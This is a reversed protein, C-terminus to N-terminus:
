IKKWHGPVWVAKGYKNFKYHGGVWVYNPGPKNVVKVPSTYVRFRPWSNTEGTSIFLFGMVLILAAIVSKISKMNKEGKKHKQINSM